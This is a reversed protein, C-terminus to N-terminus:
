GLTLGSDVADDVVLIRAGPAAAITQAITRAELQDVEPAVASRARRTSLLRHELLRLKDVVGQPLSLLMQNLWPIRSKARTGARRCTLSLVPPAVPQSRAMSEAVFLGGTRIGVLLTPAYSALVANMLSACAAEFAPGVLTQVTPRMAPMPASIHMDCSRM